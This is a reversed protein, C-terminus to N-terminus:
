VGDRKKLDRLDVLGTKQPLTFLDIWVKINNELWWGTGSIGGSEMQNICYHSADGYGRRKKLINDIKNQLDNNNSFLFQKDAWLNYASCDQSMVPIGLSWGELQKINSKCDNFVGARLPSVILQPSILDIGQLFNLFPISNYIEIKGNKYEGFLDKPCQGIFGWSYKNITSKVFPVIDSYDDFGCDTSDFHSSSGTFLIKPKKINNDYAKMRKENDINGSWWKPIYNPIISFKERNIGCKESYYDALASTTVTVADSLELVEKINKVFEVPYKAKAYNYDPMDDHLVVDDIEYMLWFGFKDSCVKLFNKFYNVQYDTVQRQLRVSRIDKFFNSDTIFRMSEVFNIKGQFKSSQIGMKPFIMRYYGCGSVDSPFLSNTYM